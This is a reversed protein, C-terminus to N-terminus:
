KLSALHAAEVWDCLTHGIFIHMEQIRATHNSPVALCIETLDRLAGGGEGTLGMCCAGYSKAIQMATLINPSNGSTTLGLVVDGPRCLAEIQRSFVQEYGYDNGVATLISTDTTLAIAALGKRERRFRGVLEAALHQSDAASGGNGMLLIKYGESIAHSMKKAMEVLKPLQPRLRNALDIHDDLAQVPDIMM